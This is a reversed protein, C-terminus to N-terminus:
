AAIFAPSLPLLISRPLCIRARARIRARIRAPAPAPARIAITELRTGNAIRFHAIRQDGRHFSRAAMADM